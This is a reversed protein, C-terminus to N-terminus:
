AMKDVIPGLVKSLTLLEQSPIQRFVEGTDPSVMRMLMKGTEADQSFQVVANTLKEAAIAKEREREEVQALEPM